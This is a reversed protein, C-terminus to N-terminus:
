YSAPPFSGQTVFPEIDKINMFYYELCRKYGSSAFLSRSCEKQDFLAFAAENRCADNITEFIKSFVHFICIAYKPNMAMRKQWENWLRSESVKLDRAWVSVQEPNNQMLSEMSRNLLGDGGKVYAPCVLNPLANHNLNSVLSYDFDSAGKRIYAQAGRKGCEFTSDSYERATMIIFPITKGFKELLHFEDNEVDNMGRDLLCSHFRMRSKGIIELAERTSEAARVCYIGFLDLLGTVRSYFEPMDDVVLVNVTKELISFPNLSIAVVAGPIKVRAQGYYSENIQYISIYSYSIAIDISTILLRCLLCKAM